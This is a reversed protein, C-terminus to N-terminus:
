HLSEWKKAVVEELGGIKMLGSLSGVCQAEQRRM